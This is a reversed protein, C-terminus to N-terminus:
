AAPRLQRRHRRPDPEALVMAEAVALVEALEAEYARKCSDHCPHGGVGDDALDFLDIHQHCLICTV